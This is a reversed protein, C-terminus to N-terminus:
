VHEPQNVFVGYGRNSMYFPVSKYAQESSTGGDANWIDISQGDKVLPGFREGLGYILEGVGLDLQEHVYTRSSALGTTTVGAVGAPEAAVPADADLTVYGEAKHGSGTLREDGHWFSLDWPGGRGIVARLTGATVVGADDTVSTGGAAADTTVEFGRSAQVGTHHDIRVKIVGDAVPTVTTTLVPLNLVHGREFIRRTPATVVLSDGEAVIDYAEQAYVATVGPRLQWFGDTFKM